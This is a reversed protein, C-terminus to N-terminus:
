SERYEKAAKNLAHSAIRKSWLPDLILEIDDQEAIKILIDVLEHSAMSERVVDKIRDLEEALWEIVEGKSIKNGDALELTYFKKKGILLDYERKPMSVLESADNIEVPM